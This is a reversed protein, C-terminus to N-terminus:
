GFPSCGRMAIAIDPEIPLTVDLVEPVVRAVVKVEACDPANETNQIAYSGDPLATGVTVTASVAPLVQVESPAYEAGAVVDEPVPTIECIKVLVVADLPEVVVTVAVKEAAIVALTPRSNVNVPVFPAVPITRLVTRPVACSKVEDSVLTADPSKTRAHPAQSCVPVTVADLVVVLPVHTGDFVVTVATELPPVPAAFM